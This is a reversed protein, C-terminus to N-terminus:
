NDLSAFIDLREARSSLSALDIHSMMARLDHCASSVCEAKDRDNSENFREWEHMLMSLTCEIEHITRSFEKSLQDRTKDRQFGFNTM